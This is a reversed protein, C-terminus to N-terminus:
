RLFLKKLITTFLSKKEDKLELIEKIKSNAIKLRKPEYLIDKM